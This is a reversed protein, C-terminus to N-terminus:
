RTVSRTITRKRDKKIVKISSKRSAPAVSSGRTVAAVNTSTVDTETISSSSANVAASPEAPVTPAVRTASSTSVTSAPLEQGASTEGEQAEVRTSKSAPVVSKKYTCTKGNWRSGRPCAICDGDDNLYGSCKTRVSREEEESDEDAHRKPRFLAYLGGIIVALLLLGLVPWLWWPCWNWGTQRNVNGVFVSPGSQTIVGPTSQIGPTVPDADYVGGGVMSNFGSRSVITTPGTQTVIGPSAQIGPTIPDADVIGTPFGGGFGGTSVVVSPGTTTLTGPQMQIGPTIPDADIIGGGYNYTQQIGSSMIKSSMMPPPTITTQFGIPPGSRLGSTLMGGGTAGVGLFGSSMMGASEPYTNGVITPPGTPTVVGPQAQIGPTIPDADVVAGGFGGTIAGAAIGSTMTTNIGGFATPGSIVTPPGTPTVVGPQAQIGPTIPDADVVAGPINRTITPVGAGIAGGAIGGTFGTSFTRASTTFAGSNFGRFGAAGVAGVPGIAGITGVTPRPGSVVRPPGTPTVVGPQSQIGPTIPDADVVGGAVTTTAGSIVSPGSVVGGGVRTVGGFAGPGSVVRSPGMQTVVGPRSQIGPTVPDADVVGGIAGVGIGGPIVGPRTALTPLGVPGTMGGIGGGPVVRTPGTATVVGPTNQAGPTIPDADGIVTPQPRFGFGTSIGPSLPGSTAFSPTGSIPVGGFQPFTAM